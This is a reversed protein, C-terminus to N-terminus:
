ACPLLSTTSLSWRFSFTAGARGEKSNDRLERKGEDPADTMADQERRRRHQKKPQSIPAQSESCLDGNEEEGVEEEDDEM